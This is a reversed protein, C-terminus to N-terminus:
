TLPTPRYSIYIFLIVHNRQPPFIKKFWQNTIYAKTHIDKKGIRENEFKRAYWILCILRTLLM